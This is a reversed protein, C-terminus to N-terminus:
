SFEFVASANKALQRLLTLQYPIFENKLTKSNVIDEVFQTIDGLRGHEPLEKLPCCSKSALQDSRLSSCLVHCFGDQMFECDYCNKIPRDTKFVYESMKKM